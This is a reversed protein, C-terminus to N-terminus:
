HVTCNFSGEILTVVSSNFEAYAHFSGALQNNNYSTITIYSNGFGESATLDNAGYFDNQDVVTQLAITNGATVPYIGPSISLSPFVLTVGFATDATSAQGIVFLTDNKFAAGQLASFTGSYTVKSATDTFHWTNTAAPTPDVYSSDSSITGGNNGGLGSGTSDQVDVSFGCTGLSDAPFFNFDTVKLLIPAKSAKLVLTDMGTKTFFGSASFYFGNLSDTIINYNGTTKVNVAVTIFNTDRVASVGNYYTGHVTVPYCVKTSDDHLSFTANNLNSEQSLEKQCSLSFFTIAFFLFGFLAISKM